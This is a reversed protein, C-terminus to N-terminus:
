EGERLFEVFYLYRSGTKRKERAYRVAYGNRVLVVAVADRDEARDIYIRQRNM